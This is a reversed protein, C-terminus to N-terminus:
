IEPFLLDGELVASPVLVMSAPAVHARTKDVTYVFQLWNITDKLLPARGSLLPLLLQSAEYTSCDTELLCAAGDPSVFTLGRCALDRVGETAKM